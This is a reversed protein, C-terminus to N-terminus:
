TVTYGCHRFTAELNDLTIQPLVQQVAEVIKKLSRPRLGRILQKVKSFVNEIPNLDPSYPTLYVVEAGVAEISAVALDSKHSSLNDMVVLDGAHLAPALLWQCFGTFCIGNMPGDLVMAARTGDLAVAQVLTNTKWKGSPIAELLRDEGEAWGRIRTLDTKLCTEDLFVLREADVTEQTAHWDQRAVVVDSRDQEAARSSKKQM